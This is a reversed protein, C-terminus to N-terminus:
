MEISDQYTTRDYLKAFVATKYLLQQLNIQALTITIKIKIHLQIYTCWMVVIMM